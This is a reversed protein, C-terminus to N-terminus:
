PPPELRWETLAHARVGGSDNRAPTHAAPREQPPRWTTAPGRLRSLGGWSWLVSGTRPHSSKGRCASTTFRERLRGAGRVGCHEVRSGLGPRSACALCPGHHFAIAWTMGGWRTAESSLYVLQSALDRSAPQGSFLHGFLHSSAASVSSSLDSTSGAPCM